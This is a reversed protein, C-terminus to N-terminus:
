SIVVQDLAAEREAGGRGGSGTCWTFPHLRGRLEGGGVLVLAGPSLSTNHRLEILLCYNLLM